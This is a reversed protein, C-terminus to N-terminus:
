RTYESSSRLAPQCPPWVGPGGGPANPMVRRERPVTVPDESALYALMAVLTANNKLDDFVIKDFTDRNTHWTYSGYDWSLSGLNFSPAGHCIFSANDSGGAAPTGPFTVHLHRSIEAPLRSLWGAYRAGADVLGSPSINVVRGTGNDQNFLAQLGNVIGPHAAAFARSGVLGQEEGSWHGVLITRRPRPYATKLIRMAELMTVTGTANDTAGSSGDWSDFHASLMVYEDPKESGRIEAITNHVPIEGLAESEAELRLVPGQGHEALRAVLGYDECGLQITPIRQTRASFIRDVGWGQSWLNTVIGLAGAAELKAPLARAALAYTSDRQRASRLVREGWEVQAAARESKMRAYSEPTGWAAWTTDPRCTPQPFSVLVFRGKVGPLWRAFEAASRAPPLVVAAGEVRGRTGPSWALMMGELTRVRPAILDVHTVGRRWGRWTGYAERRAPIGWRAYTAILWDIGAAHQPTGTLRPGISDVLAQALPYSRSSDMGLAWIRRLVADNTPFTQAAAPATPTALLAGLVVAHLSHRITIGM